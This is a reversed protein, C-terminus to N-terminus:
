PSETPSALERFDIWGVDPAFDTIPARGEEIVSAWVYFRMGPEGIRSSVIIRGSKVYNHEGPFYSDLWIGYAGSGYSGGPNMATKGAVLHTVWERHNARGENDMGLRFDPVGDGTTDLVLGYAIWRESSDPIPKLAYDALRFTVAVRREGYTPPTGPFEISVIDVWDFEGAPGADGIGDRVLVPEPFGGNTVRELEVNGAGASPEIRLPWPLNEHAGGIATPVPTPLGGIRSVDTGGRSVIAVIVGIAVVAAVGTLARRGAGDIHRWGRGWRGAQPALAVADLVAPLVWDPARTPGEELWGAVHEDFGAPRTM